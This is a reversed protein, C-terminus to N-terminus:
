LLPPSSHRQNLSHCSVHAVMLIIVLLLALLSQVHINDALFVSICVLVIKRGIITVEWYFRDKLRYGTYLFSYKMITTPVQERINHRQRVLLFFAGLPIGIVWLVMMPLGVALLWTLHTSSYCQQSLDALLYLANDVRNDELGINKCNFLSFAQNAINPHVLFLCVIVSTTYKDLLTARWGREEPSKKMLGVRAIRAERAHLKKAAERNGRSHQRTGSVPTGNSTATASPSAPSPSSPSNINTDDLRRITPLPTSNPTMEIELSNSSTMKKLAREHADEGDIHGTGHHRSKEEEAKLHKWAEVDKIHDQKIWRSYPIFFLWPIVIVMLPLILFLLCKLYFPNWVGQVFCDVSFINSGVDATQQQTNLLVLVYSPWDFEFSRAISNFQIGSFLIKLLITHTAKRASGLGNHLEDLDELAWEIEHQAKNQRAEALRRKLERLQRAHLRIAETAGRLSSWVFLSCVIVVAIAAASLIAQNQTSSPCASCGYQGKRGYGDACVQCMNGSYGTACSEGIAGGTCSAQYVCSLFEVNDRNLAPWRGYLSPMTLQQTNVITCNGGTPCSACESSANVQYYGVECWCVTKSLAPSSYDQCTTCSASGAAAIDNDGCDVCSTSRQSSYSGSSCLQCQAAGINPNYRGAPCDSCTASRNGSYTGESCTDCSAAGTSSVTGAVCDICGTQGTSPQSKGATCASCFTKNAADQYRGNDCAACYVLTDREGVDCLRIHVYTFPTSLGLDVASVRFSAIAGPRYTVGIAYPGTFSWIGAVMTPSTSLTDNVATSVFSIDALTSSLSLPTPAADTVVQDYFDILSVSLVLSTDFLADSTANYSAPLQNTWVLKYQESAYDPGHEAENNTFTLQYTIISSPYLSTPAGSSTFRDYWYVGGGALASNDIFSSYRLLLEGTSDGMAIAGGHGNPSTNETLICRLLVSELHSSADIAGGRTVATNSTFSSGIVQIAASSRLAIAGGYVAKNNTFSSSNFKLTCFVAYFGGGNSYATNNNIITNSIVHSRDGHCYVAAGYAGAQNESFTTNSMTVVAFELVLAGGNDNVQNGSFTSSDISVNGQQAFVGGGSDAINNAIISDIITLTCADCYVGGGTNVTSESLLYTSTLEQLRRSSWSSAPTSSPGATTTHSAERRAAESFGPKSTSLIFSSSTSASSISFSSLLLASSNIVMNNSITTSDITVSTSSAAYIAGGWPAYNSDLITDSLILEASTTTLAFVGGGVTGINNTFSGGTAIFTGAIYAVGQEGECERVYVNNLVVRQTADVTFVAGGVLSFGSTIVMDNLVIDGGTIDFCQNDQCDIITSTGSGSLVVGSVSISLSSTLSYNGRPLVFETNDMQYLSVATNLSTVTFVQAVGAANAEATANNGIYVVPPKFSVYQYIDCYLVDIAGVKTDDNTTTVLTPELEYIAGWLSSYQQTIEHCDSSCYAKTSPTLEYIAGSKTAIASRVVGVSMYAIPIGDFSTYLDEFRLWTSQVIIDTWSALVWVVKQLWLHGDTTLVAFYELNGDISAIRNNTNGDIFLVDDGFSDYETAEYAQFQMVSYVLTGWGYLRYSDVVAFSYLAHTMLHTYKSTSPLTDIGAIVAPTDTQGSRGLAGQYGPGWTYLDSTGDDNLQASAFHWDGNAILYSKSSTLTGIVGPTLYASLFENTSTMDLQAAWTLLVGSSTRAIVTFPGGSHGNAGQVMSVQKVYHREVGNTVRGLSVSGTRANWGVNSTDWGGYLPANANTPNGWTWVDGNTTSAVCNAGFCSISSWREYGSSSGIDLTDAISMTSTSLTRGFAPSATVESFGMFSYLDTGVWSLISGAGTVEVTISSKTLSELITIQGRARTSKVQFALRSGYTGTSFSSITAIDDGGDISLTFYSALALIGCGKIRPEIWCYFPAKGSVASNGRCRVVSTSDPQRLVYISITPLPITVGTKSIVSPQLHGLGTGNAFTTVISGGVETPMNEYVGISPCTSVYVQSAAKIKVQFINAIGSSSTGVLTQTAASTFIFDSSSDLISSASNVVALRLVDSRSWVTRGSIGGVKPVISCSYTSNSGAIIYSPCTFVAYDPSEVITIVWTSISDSITTQPIAGTSPATIGFQFLSQITEGTLGTRPTLTVSSLSSSLSLASWPISLAVGNRMPTIFCQTTANVLLVSSDCILISTNDPALQVTLNHLTNVISRGSLTFQLSSVGTTNGTAIEMQFTSGIDPSLSTLTALSSSFLLTSSQTYVADYGGTSNRLWTAVTCIRSSNQVMVLMRSGVSCDITILDFSDRIVTISAQPLPNFGVKYVGTINGMQISSSYESVYSQPSWLSFGTETLWTTDAGSRPAASGLTSVIVDYTTYLSIQGRKATLTCNVVDMQYVISPRCVLTTRAAEPRILSHIIVPYSSPSLLEGSSTVSAKLITEGGSTPGTFITLFHQSYISGTVQLDSSMASWTSTMSSISSLSGSGSAKSMTFSSATTYVPVGNQKAAFWCAVSQALSTTSGVKSVVDLTRNPQNTSTTCTFNIPADWSPYCCRDYYM